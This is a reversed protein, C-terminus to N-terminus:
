EAPSTCSASARGGTGETQLVPQRGMADPHGLILRHPPLLQLLRHLAQLRSGRAAQSIADGMPLRFWACGRSCLGRKSYAASPSTELAGAAKRSGGWKAGSLFLFARASFGAGRVWAQSDTLHSPLSAWATQTQFKYTSSYLRSYAFINSPDPHQSYLFCPLSLLAPFASQPFSCLCPLVCPLCYMHLPNVTCPRQAPCLLALM